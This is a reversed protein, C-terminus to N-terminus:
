ERADHAHGGVQQEHRKEAAVTKGAHTRPFNKAHIEAYQEKAESQREDRVHDLVIREVPKLGM